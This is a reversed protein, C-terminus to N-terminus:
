RSYREIAWLIGTVVVLVAAFAGVYGLFRGVAGYRIEEWRERITVKRYSAADNKEADSSETSDADKGDRDKM